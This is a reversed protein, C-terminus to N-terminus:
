EYTGGDVTNITVADIQKQVKSFAANITDGDAVASADVGKSYGTLKLNSGDLTTGSTIAGNNIKWGEITDIRGVAAGLANNSAIDNTTVTVGTVNGESQAVSVTVHSATDSGEKADALFTGTTASIVGDAQKVTKIYKTLGGQEDAHLNKIATDVKGSADTAAQKNDSAKKALKGLAVNVTDGAVVDADVTAITYGDLKVNGGNVKSVASTIATTVGSLKLGRQATTGTTVIGLFNKDNDSSLKVSIANDDSIDIGDGPIHDKVLDQANIYLTPKDSNAIVLKIATGSKDPQQGENYEEFNDGSWKGKVVSGSSVVMDKPIIIPSGSVEDKGQMIRYIGNNDNQITVAADTGGSDIATHLQILADEVNGSPFIKSEVTVDKATSAGTEITGLTVTIKGETQTVGTVVNGDGSTTGTLETIAANIKGDITGTVGSIADERNKIETALGTASAVDKLGIEYNVHGDQAAPESVKVTLHDNDVTSLTTKAAAIAKTNEEAKTTVTDINTINISVQNAIKKTADHISTADKIIANDIYAEYQLTGQNLGANRAILKDKEGRTNIETNLQSQVDEGSASSASLKVWGKELDTFQSKDKLVYVCSNELVSVRLGNYLKAKDDPWTITNTLDSVNEVVMRSDIPAAASINFASGMRIANDNRAM